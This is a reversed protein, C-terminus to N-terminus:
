STPGKVKRMHPAKGLIKEIVRLNPQAPRFTGDNASWYIARPSYSDPLGYFRNRWNPNKNGPGNRGPTGGVNALYSALEVGELGISNHPNM